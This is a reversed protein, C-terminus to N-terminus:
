AAEDELALASAVESDFSAVRVGPLYNDNSAMEREDIVKASNKLLAIMEKDIPKGVSVSETWEWEPRAPPLQAVPPEHPQELPSSSVCVREGLAYFLGAFTKVTPNADDSLIQSLRAKSIRAREALETNSIGKQSMREQLLFQYDILLNEEAEIIKPDFPVENKAMM